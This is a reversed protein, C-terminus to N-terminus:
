RYCEVCDPLNCGYREEYESHSPIIFSCLDCYPDGCDFDSYNDYLSDVDYDDEYWDWMLSQSSFWEGADYADVAYGQYADENQETQWESLWMARERRRVLKRVWRGKDGEDAYYHSLVHSGSSVSTGNHTWSRRHRRVGTGEVPIGKDEPHAHFRRGRMWAWHADQEKHYERLNEEAEVTWGGKDTYGLDYVTKFEFNSVHQKGETNWCRSRVM